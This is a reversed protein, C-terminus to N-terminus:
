RAVNSGVGAVWGTAKLEPLGTVEVVSTSGSRCKEVAQPASVLALPPLATFPLTLKGAPAPVVREAVKVGVAHEVVVPLKLKKPAPGPPGVLVRVWFTLMPFGVLGGTTM